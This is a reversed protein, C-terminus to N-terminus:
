QVLRENLFAMLEDSAKQLPVLLPAPLPAIGFVDDIQRGWTHVKAWKIQAGLEYLGRAAEMLAGAQDRGRFSIVWEREDRSVIEISDFRVNFRRERAGSVGGLLKRIQAATKTTKVEFWDYVGREPDTHISAHRVSLGSSSLLSVYSLFLGPRDEASHFRIWTQKGGRVRVVVPDLDEGVKKKFLARLDDLLSKSPVSGMLFPDLAELFGEYGEVGARKLTDGFHILSDAEPRELQAVLEHLLREKWPTWADPNTALIDVVTFVALLHLRRGRVGRDALVRWTRPSRPNERFAAASLGLHEEVIWCVENIFTEDKGFRSLDQKAIEIGKISHDGGRGKAIDHYLAGFALIEWEKKKLSRVSAALKGARKPHKRLRKLERLAQLIHADVSYRHYQDHQVHGVIKKFEPVCHDILRSRFFAVMPAEPTAPDLLHTLWRGMERHLHLRREVAKSYSSTKSTSAFEERFVRDAALRVHNQMLLSPDEELAAFLDEMKLLARKEIKRLRAPARSAQEIVWDAYFSVRSVGKQVERMFDKPDQFGLWDSIPKQEPASLIEGGGPALHLKQRVLLFLRKYYLLVDFAHQNQNFDNTFKEPFLDRAVLAQELDRLGGPGFKLNPELFNSISDYREARAKREDMMARLLHLRFERNEARLRVLQAELKERALSTLPLASFLSLVDFPLVGKTWDEPDEPMRYRLKLGEKAGDQTLRRVAEEDGCFLIDIDSKPSLEGRAWSGLAVPGAKEWDPHRSLKAKLKEGLWESFFLSAFDEIKREDGDPIRLPARLVAEAEQLEQTNLFSKTAM